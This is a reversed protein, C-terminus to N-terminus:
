KGVARRQMVIPIGNWVRGNLTRGNAKKNRSKGDEGWRGWQKFFFPVKQERCQERISIVWTKDMPRAKYGSEGGVIVWHIGDLNITGLDELLPEVSLFRQQTSIKCLIPIRPLGYKKDEISVGLWMNPPVERHAFYRAMRQPRKTLVQYTHHSTDRIVSVVKDIFKFSVKEHFLDSMSNVFYVTSSKRHRPQDLRDPLERVEIFPMEYGRVHMTRLRKALSEAYCNKCGPSVKTCGTVPNWSFETWEIKSTAM